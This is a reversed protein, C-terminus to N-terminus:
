FLVPRSTNVARDFSKSLQAKKAYFLRPTTRNANALGGHLLELTGTAFDPFLPMSSKGRRSQSKFARRSSGLLIYIVLLDNTVLDLGFRLFYESSNLVWATLRNRM